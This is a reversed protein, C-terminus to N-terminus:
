VIKDDQSVPIFVAGDYNERSFNGELTVIIQWDGLEPATLDNNGDAKWLIKDGYPVVFTGSGGGGGVTSRIYVLNIGNGSSM